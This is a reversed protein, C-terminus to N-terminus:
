LFEAAQTINRVETFPRFREDPQEGRRNVWIAAIGLEKCVPMDLPMSAAVHVVESPLVGLKRHACRFLEPNPKYANAQQATIVEDVVVGLNPVACLILDDDSNSILALRYREKLKKLIAPVEAFAPLTEITKILREYDASEFKLGARELSQKFSERLISRYPKYPPTDRLDRGVTHFDHLIPGPDGGARGQQALIREVTERLGEHWQVLTGYFDFTIAKTQPGALQM